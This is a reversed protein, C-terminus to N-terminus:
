GDADVPSDSDSAIILNLQLSSLLASHLRLNACPCLASTLTYRPSLCMGSLSTPTSVLNLAETLACGEWVCCVGAIDNLSAFCQFASSWVRFRGAAASSSFFPASLSLSLPHARAHTRTHTHTLSLSLILFSRPKEYQLFFM